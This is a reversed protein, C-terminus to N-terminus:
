RTATGVLRDLIHRVTTSVGNVQPLFSESVIAVRMTSGDRLTTFACHRDALRRVASQRDDPADPHVLLLPM